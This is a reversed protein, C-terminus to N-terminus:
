SSWCLLKSQFFAIEAHTQESVPLYKFVVKTHFKLILKCSYRLHYWLAPSPESFHCNLNSCNEQSQFGLVSPLTKLLLVSTQLSPRLCFNFSNLTKVKEFSMKQNQCNYDQTTKNAQMTKPNNKTLSFHILYKIFLRYYFFLENCM